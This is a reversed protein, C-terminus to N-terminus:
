KPRVFFTDGAIVRAKTYFWGQLSGARSNESAKILCVSYGETGYGVPPNGLEAIDSDRIGCMPQPGTRGTGSSNARDGNNGGQYTSAMPYEDCSRGATRPGTVGGCTISRRERIQAPDTIRSLPRGDGSDNAFGPLGSTVAFSVHNQYETLDAYGRIDWIPSVGAIVCGTTNRMRPMADCRVPAAGLHENYPEADGATINFRLVPQVTEVAGAAPNTVFSSFSSIETGEEITFTDVDGTGCSSLGKQCLGSITVSAGEANQEVDTVQFSYEMYWTTNNWAPNILFTEIGNFKGIEVDGNSRDKLVFEATNSYYCAEQRNGKWKGRDHECM